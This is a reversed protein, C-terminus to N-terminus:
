VVEHELEAREARAVEPGTTVQARARGLRPLATAGILVGAVILGAGLLEGRRVTEGLLAWAASMGFVPVLLSFPAVLGAPHRSILWTWIGSGALLAIVM